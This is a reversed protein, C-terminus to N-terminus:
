LKNYIKANFVLLRTYIIIVFLSSIYLSACNGRLNLRGLWKGGMWAWFRWLKDIFGYREINMVLFSVKKNMIRRIRDYKTFIVFRMLFGM